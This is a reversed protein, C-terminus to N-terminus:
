LVLIHAVRLQQALRQPLQQETALLDLYIQRQELVGLVGDGLTVWDLLPNGVEGDPHMPRQDWDTTTLFLLKGTQRM